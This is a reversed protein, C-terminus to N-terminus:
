KDLQEPKHNDLKAELLQQELEDIRAAM